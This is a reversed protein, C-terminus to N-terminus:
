NPYTNGRNSLIVIGLKRNPMMGIYASANNLGGYKSVITPDKGRTIEWALAQTDRANIAFVGQQALDMAAALAPTVAVEGMNAALFPAIDRASSYMQSTGPWHYYGQQDGPEGIATGDEEYGQVARRKDEASLQGRPTGDRRPLFTSSMGLPRLIRSEMLEDIPVGLRRELALQLLIFGAHTYIHQGGPEHDFDCTWENLSYIFEPLTYGWDPWPPHDQS